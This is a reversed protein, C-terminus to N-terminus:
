FYTYMPVKNFYYTAVEQRVELCEEQWSSQEIDRREIMALGPLSFVAGIYALM